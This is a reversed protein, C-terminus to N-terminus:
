EPGPFYILGVMSDTQWNKGVTMVVFAERRSPFTVLAYIEGYGIALITYYVRYMGVIMGHNVFHPVPDFGCLQPRHNMNSTTYGGTDTSPGTYLSSIFSIYRIHAKASSVMRHLTLGPERPTKETGM